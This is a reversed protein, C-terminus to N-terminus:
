TSRVRRAFLIIVAALVGGVAGGRHAEYAIPGGVLTDTSHGANWELVLKAILGIVMIWLPWATGLNQPSRGITMFLCAAFQFHLAGSLGCYWDLPEVFALYLAVWVLSIAQILLWEGASRHGSFGWALLTLGALNLGLHVWGLHTFQGLLAYIFFSDILDLGQQPFEAAFLQGFVAAIGIALSSAVTLFLPSTANYNRITEM